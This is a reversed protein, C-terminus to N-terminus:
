QQKQNTDSCRLRSCCHIIVGEDKSEYGDDYNDKDNAVEVYVGLIKM